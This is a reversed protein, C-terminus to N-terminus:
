EIPSSHLLCLSVCCPATKHRHEATLSLESTIDLLDLSSVYGVLYQDSRITTNHDITCQFRYEFHIVGQSQDSVLENSLHCDTPELHTIYGELCLANGQSLLM